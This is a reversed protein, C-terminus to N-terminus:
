LIGNLVRQYYDYQRTRWADLSDSILGLVVEVCQEETLSPHFRKRLNAMVRSPGAKFCPFNCNQMMEVLLLIHDSHKRCALFGQICLVKFYDFLESARGESDSDMVELLERTLKFPASEFNVGGPSNSLMFGFDIHIVHGADDLMVNGNHRDKLQLLYSVISYGAMSEVFRHQAASCEPTGKGYKSLFYDRLSTNPSLRSKVVHLSLADPVVEIFASHSGTVLVEYPRLWLPLGSAEFIDHFQRILQVALLEQRCDDGSKVIVQRVAWGEKRSYPSERAIREQRECWREGHVAYAAEQMHDAFKRKHHRALHAVLQQESSSSRWSTLPNSRSAARTLAESSPIRHHKTSRKPTAIQLDVGGCVELQVSVFPLDAPSLIPVASVDHGGSDRGCLWSRLGGLSVGSSSPSDPPVHNSAAASLGHNHAPVTVGRSAAPRHNSSLASRPALGLKDGIVKFSVKVIPSEGRLGAMAIDLPKPVHPQAELLRCATGSSHSAGAQLSSQPAEADRPSHMPRADAPRGAPLHGAGVPQEIPRIRCGPLRGGPTSATGSASAASSGSSHREPPTNALVEVCLMFPAKERSNLLKAEGAPVLVVRENECSLPFSVSVGKRSAAEIDANLQQLGNVLAAGRQDEPVTNLVTSAECLADVFDLTAGFTTQRQRTRPSSARSSNSATESMDTSNNGLDDHLPSLTLAPPGAADLSGQALVDAAVVIDELNVPGRESSSSTASAHEEEQLEMRLKRYHNCNVESVSGPHESPPASRHGRETLPGSDDRWSDSFSSGLFRNMKAKIDLSRKKSAKPSLSSSSAPAQSPSPRQISGILKGDSSYVPKGRHDEPASASPGAAADFDLSRPGRSRGPLRQPEHSRRQRSGAPVSHDSLTFSGGWPTSLVGYRQRPPSTCTRPDKFPPAWTGELAAQESRDRLQQLHTNEPCDQSRSLLLWYTKVAIRLSVSCLDLLLRELASNPRSLVLTTLQLLYRELSTEPMSYMRNCIYDHVGTSPSTHLYTLAIWEDFFESDFFRLLLDTRGPPPPLAAGAGSALGATGERGCGEQAEPGRPGQFRLPSSTASTSPSPSLGHAPGPAAQQPLQGEGQMGAVGHSAPAPPHRLASPIDAVQPSQLIAAGGGKTNTAKGNQPAAAAAAAAAGPAEKSAPPKKMVQQHIHAGNAEALVAATPGSM